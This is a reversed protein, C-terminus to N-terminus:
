VGCGLTGPPIQECSPCPNGAGTNCHLIEYVNHFHIEWGSPHLARCRNATPGGGGSWCRYTSKTDIISIGLAANIADLNVWDQIKEDGTNTLYFKVASKITLMNAIIIREDTRAVFKGYNPLAFATILGVVIVVIIIEM